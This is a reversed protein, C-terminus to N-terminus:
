LADAQEFFSHAAGQHHVALGAHGGFGPPAQTLVHVPHLQKLLLQLAGQGCKAGSPSVRTLRGTATLASLRAM